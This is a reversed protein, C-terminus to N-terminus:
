YYLSLLLLYNRQYSSTSKLRIYHLSPKNTIFFTNNVPHVKENYLFDMKESFAFPIVFKWILRDSQFCLAEYVFSSPFSFLSLQM